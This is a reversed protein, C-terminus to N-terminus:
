FGAEWIGAMSLALGPLLEGERLETPDQLCIPDSDPAYQWLHRDQPLILWGLGVGNDRWERMKAHLAEPHDSASALEIVVDPALPLFARKQEASLKALRANRVWALDPSRMAGNPLLFGTSSDFVRGRRDTAAWNGFLRTLEANRAGTEAGTPPMIVIDGQSSREIRLERNAECLAVLWDNDRSCQRPLRLNLGSFGPVEGGQPSLPPPFFGSSALAPQPTPM